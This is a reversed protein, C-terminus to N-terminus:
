AQRWRSCGVCDDLDVFKVPSPVRYRQIHRQLANKNKNECPRKIKNWRIEVRCLCGITWLPSNDRCEFRKGRAATYPSVAEHGLSLDSHEPRSRLFINNFEAHFATQVCCYSTEYLTLTAERRCCSHVRCRLMWHSSLRAIRNAYLKIHAVRTGGRWHYLHFTNM